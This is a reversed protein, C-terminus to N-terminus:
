LLPVVHVGQPIIVAMLYINGLLKNGVEVEWLLVQYRMRDFVNTSVSAELLIRGLFMFFCMVHVEFVTPVGGIVIEVVQWLYDCKLMVNGVEMDPLEIGLGERM